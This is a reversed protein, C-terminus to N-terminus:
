IKNDEDIDHFTDYQRNYKVILSSTKKILNNRVTIKLRNNYESSEMMRINIIMDALPDAATDEVALRVDNVTSATMIVVIDLEEALVKMERTFEYLKISRQENESPLFRYIFDISNIIVIEIGSSRKLEIVRDRLGATNLIGVEEVYLPTGKPTIQCLDMCYLVKKSADELAMESSFIVVPIKLNVSNKLAINNIFDTRTIQDFSTVIIVEKPHFKGTIEDLSKLGSTAPDFSDKMMAALKTNKILTDQLLM